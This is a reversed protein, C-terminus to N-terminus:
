TFQKFRLTKDHNIKTPNCITKMRLSQPNNDCRQKVTFFIEAPTAFVTATLITQFNAQRM